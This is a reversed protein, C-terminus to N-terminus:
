VEAIASFRQIDNRIQDKMRERIETDLEVREPPVFGHNDNPGMLVAPREERAATETEQKNIKKLHTELLVADRTDAEERTRYNDDHAILDPNDFDEEPRITVTMRDLPDTTRQLLLKHVPCMNDAPM